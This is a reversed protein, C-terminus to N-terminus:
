KFSDESLVLDAIAGAFIKANLMFSKISIYENEEHCTDEEGPFIPGWSVVNKMAKAYSGGYALTFENPRGSVEEYAKALVKLFPKDKSIYVAPLSTHRGIRGGIPSIVKEIASLFDEEKVGYAFRINVNVRIRDQETAIITVSMTNRHIYEGNYYESESYMDIGSCYIDEFRELLLRVVEAQKNGYLDMDSLMRCLRIIANDGKEPQCSHAATGAVTLVKEEEEFSGDSRKVRKVLKATCQGPVTNTATGGDIATLFLGEGPNEEIPFLMEVDMVGKEINCIPFEGDPTFGYDPLPFSQVYVQMDTWEVEEQTGLILQVKKKFPVGREKVAKMAYLSAIIAGKDDLTGRGYLADNQITPEFPPTKWVTLDGPPVVDVHSLIGLTEPGEGEEIVGVQGGLVSEAKFGLKRGLELAFDLARRVQVSDDSVSPIRVFDCLDEVMRERNDDLYKMLRQRDM